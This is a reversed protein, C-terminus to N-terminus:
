SNLVNFYLNFFSNNKGPFSLAYSNALIISAPDILLVVTRNEPHIVHRSSGTLQVVLAIKNGKYKLLTSSPIIVDLKGSNSSQDIAVSTRLDFETTNMLVADAPLVNNSKLVAVTDKNVSVDVTFSRGAAGSLAIDLPISISAVSPLYNATGSVELKTGGGNVISLAHMQNPAIIEQPDITIITTSKKQDISNGKAVGTLRLGFAVKKGSFYFKELEPVSMVAEFIASTAGYPIIVTQPVILTESPIAVTNPLLNGTIASTVVQEDLTLHADFSQAASTTLKVEIPIKINEADRSVQGLIGKLSVSTPVEKGAGFYEMEEEKCSQFLVIFM